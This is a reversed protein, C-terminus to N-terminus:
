RKCSFAVLLEEKCSDCVVRTFGFALVGCELYRTLEIEEFRPLGGEHAGMEALFGALGERV